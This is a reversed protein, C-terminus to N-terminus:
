LPQLVSVRLFTLCKLVRSVFSEETVRMVMGKDNDLRVESRQARCNRVIRSKFTIDVEKSITILAGINLMKRRERHQLVLERVM